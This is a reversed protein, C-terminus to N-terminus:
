PLPVRVLIDSYTCNCINEKQIISEKINTHIQLLTCCTIVVKM